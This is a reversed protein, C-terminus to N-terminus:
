LKCLVVRCNTARPLQETVLIELKGERRQVSFFQLRRATYDGNCKAVENCYSSQGCCCIWRLTINVIEYKCM